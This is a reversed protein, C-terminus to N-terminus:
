GPATSFAIYSGKAKFETFTSSTGGRNSGACTFPLPQNRCADVIMISMAAGADKLQKQISSLKIGNDEIENRCKSADDMPVLYNQGSEELGHGAYFFLAVTANGQIKGKFNRIADLFQSRSADTVTTVEFGCDQLAATMTNADNVTNSLPSWGNRYSKNGIVLAIRKENSALTTGGNVDPVFLGRYQAHVNISAFFLLFLIQITKM